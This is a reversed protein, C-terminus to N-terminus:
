PSAYYVEEQDLLRIQPTGPFRGSVDLEGPHRRAADGFAPHARLHRLAGRQRQKSRYMAADARDLLATTDAPSDSLAIGVSLTTIVEYHGMRLPRAVAEQIRQAIARVEDASVLSCVVVFEDGGTRAVLDPSRAAGSMREATAVLLEDGRRHGLHDNVMKLGDLDCVLVGVPVQEHTVARLAAQLAARNPLGTLPDHHAQHRLSETHHHATALRELIEAAAEVFAIEDSAFCRHSPSGVVIRDEDPGGIPVAFWSALPRASATGVVGAATEVTIEAQLPSAMLDCALLNLRSPTTGSLGALALKTLTEQRALAVETSTPTPGGPHRLIRNRQEV